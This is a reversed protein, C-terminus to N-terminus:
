AFGTLGSVRVKSISLVRTKQSENTHDLTFAVQPFVLALTELEKRTLDLTRM